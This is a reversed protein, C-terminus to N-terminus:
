GYIVSCSKTAENRVSIECATGENVTQGPFSDCGQWGFSIGNGFCDVGFCEYANGAIGGGFPNCRLEPCTSVSYGMCAPIPNGNLCITNLAFTPDYCPHPPCPVGNGGLVEGGTAYGNSFTSSDLCASEGTVSFGFGNLLAVNPTSTITEPGCHSFTENNGNRETLTGLVNSGISVALVYAPRQVVASPPAPCLDICNIVVSGNPLPGSYVWDYSNCNVFSNCPPCEYPNPQGPCIVGPVPSRGELAVSEVRALLTGGSSQMFTAFPLGPISNRIMTTTISVSVLYREVETAGAFTSKRTVYNIEIPKSADPFCCSVSGGCCCATCAADVSM